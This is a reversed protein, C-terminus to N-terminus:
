AATPGGVRDLRAALAALEFPKQLVVAGTREQFAMVDAAGADGSILVIREKLAPREAVLRDYLDMGSLDGIRVDCVVAHHGGRTLAALAAPGDAALEVIWGRPELYRHLALRISEEDEVVLIRRGSGAVPGAAVGEDDVADRDSARRDVLPLAVTFRAGGGQGPPVNEAVLTGRHRRVITQSVSLGLGAGEGSPKTTFFPDFIRDLLDAPIGPGSDQVVFEILRGRPRLSLAIRGGAPTAQAANRLLNTLVQELGAADGELMPLDSDAQWEFLVGRERCERSFVPVLPAVLSAPAIRDVKPREARVQELLGRVILRGRRAQHGIVTLAERQHEGPNGDLLDQAFAQIATLPNNLEHAVAALRNGADALRVLHDDPPTDARDRRRRALLGATIAAGLLAGLLASLLPSM